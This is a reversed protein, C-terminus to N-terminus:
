PPPAPGNTTVTCDTSPVAAIRFAFTADKITRGNIATNLPLETFDITTQVAGSVTTAACLWVWACIKWVHM